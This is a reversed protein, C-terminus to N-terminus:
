MKKISLSLKRASINKSTTILKTEDL